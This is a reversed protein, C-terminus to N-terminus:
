SILVWGIASSVYWFAVFTAADVSAPATAVDYGKSDTVTLSTIAGAFYFARVEGRTPATPLVVTLEALTGTDFYVDDHTNHLQVVDASAPALVRPASM